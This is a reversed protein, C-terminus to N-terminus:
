PKAGTKRKSRLREELAKYLADMELLNKLRAERDAESEEYRRTL